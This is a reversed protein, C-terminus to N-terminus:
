LAELYLAHVDDRSATRPNCPACPDALAKDLWGEIDQRTIGLAAFGAPIGVRASLTRIAHIAALSAQEEDMDRTDVGLASAIRAFRAPASPRNFHEVVPLLIANCVGHPLNHTAGPQHALAHVLGLGASNFAMGALYQACAMMERAKLNHGNDVAEPLWQGILRIAELANPDTLTHAGTSVYAEIAHTLADMGTAATVAPPIALMVSADDVAIDPIINSDIIVEKVQRESDTIVANSTMEAATGATTNIAVLHVGPHTVHGVGSYRTSPGPNATLIKIAKATDIPSGGGFAIIYDCQNDQWAQFGQQVLAETPNPFVSDFLHWDMNHGALASFLSDLLGLKVLQGDTVILAKGWQKGSVLKVMDGIAGTGHLSIKPLALTFSM